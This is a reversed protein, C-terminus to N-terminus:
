PLSNVDVIEGFNPPPFYIWAAKGIINERPVFGWAHSDSSNPRNDGLVFYEGKPVTWEGTYTAMESIYPENTSTGNISVRGENISVVDGPLGIVRKLLEQKTDLPFRFIVIDGRQLDNQQYALKDVLIYNGDSLTTEMSNGDFRVRATSNNILLNLLLPFVLWVAALLALSILWHQRKIRFALFFYILCNFVIIFVIAINNLSLMRTSSFVYAIVSGFVLNYIGLIAFLVVLATIVCGYFWSSKPPNQVVPTSSSITM